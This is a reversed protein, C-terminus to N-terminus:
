NLQCLGHYMLRTTEKPKRAMKVQTCLHCIIYTIFFLKISASMNVYELLSGERKTNQFYKAQSFLWCLKQSVMRTSNGAFNHRLFVSIGQVPSTDSHLVPNNSM